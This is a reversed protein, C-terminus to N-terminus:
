TNCATTGVAWAYGATNSAACDYVLDETLCGYQGCDVTTGSTWVASNGTTQGALITVTGTQTSPTGGYCPTYTKNFTVTVNAPAAVPTGSNNYLTATIYSTQTNYLTGLCDVQDGSGSNLSLGIKYTGGVPTTSTDSVTVTASTAVTSGSTSGTKLSLSFIESGETFSDSTLTRTITATNSNITVQGTAANDSFDQSGFGSGGNTVWYLTTGNNVNTTTVTFVVSGGENVTTVNPVITYTPTVSINQCDSCTSYEGLYTGSSASTTGSVSGITYCTGNDSQVVVGASLNDPGNYRLVGTGGGSCATVNYYTVTTPTTSTDVITVQASTAVVTGVSSGTRISLTFNENGETLLDATIVRTITGTNNNIIVSGYTYNDTFDAGVASGAITYYLVTGNAVNSTTVTFTLTQGENVSTASPTVSYTPTTGNGAACSLTTTWSDTTNANGAHEATMYYWRLDGGSQSKTFSITGTTPTSITAGWPGSYAAVGKWGSSVILTNDSNYLNFRNPLTSVDYSMTIVDPSGQLDLLKKPYIVFTSSLTSGTITNGCVYTQDKTATFSVVASYSGGCIAEITGEVNVCAPINNLVVPSNVFPGIETTYTSDGVVRWKVRYGNAPVPNPATFSIQLTKLIPCAM